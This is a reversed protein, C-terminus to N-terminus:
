CWCCSRSGWQRCRGGALRSWMRWTREIVSSPRALVPRDELFRKLDGGLEAQKPVAARAGQRHVEPDDDRPQRPIQPDPKQQPSRFKTQLVLQMLGSGPGACQVGAASAADRVADPGPQLCREASRVLRSLTGAAHLPHHQHDRRNPHSGRAGKAQSDPQYALGFDTIWIRGATDLLLNSPKIDRHSSVRSPACIGPRGRGPHGLRCAGRFCRWRGRGGLRCPRRVPSLCLHHRRCFGSARLLPLIWAHLGLQGRLGRSFGRPDSDLM